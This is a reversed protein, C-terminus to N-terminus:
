DMKEEIFNVEQMASLSAADQLHYYRRILRSDRHGLWSMLTQEPVRSDACRSCFYHRFSHIRGDVFGRTEGKPTPFRSALPKLVENILLRLIRDPKIPTGKPTHFVLGDDTLPLSQLIPLLDEHIPFSRSRKGKLTRPQGSRIRSRLSREDTLRIMGKDFLLDSRRLGALESIRMGTHALTFLVAHMWRLHPVEQCHTLMAQMEECTYCYTDTEERKSLPLTIRHGEPLDGREILHKVVQKLTTLELIITGYAYKKQNLWEWYAELLRNNVQSWSAIKRQECFKRFKKLVSEYRKLTQSAVQQTAMKVRFNRLYKEIGEQLCIATPTQQLTTQPALGHEVAIKLDLSKLVELAEARTTVGLSYRKLKQPNSRGDAYYIGNRVSLTWGFYQSQVFPNTRRKPM